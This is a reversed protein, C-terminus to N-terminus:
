KARRQVGLPRAQKKKRRYFQFLFCHQPSPSESPRFGRGLRSPPSGRAAEARTTIGRVGEVWGCDAGEAAVAQTQTLHTDGDGTPNVWLIGKSGGGRGRLSTLFPGSRSGPAGGRRRIRRRAAPGSCTFASTSALFHISRRRSTPRREGAWPGGVRRDGGRGEGGRAGAGPTRHRRSRSWDGGARLRVPPASPARM